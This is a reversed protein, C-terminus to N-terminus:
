MRRAGINRAPRARANKVPCTDIPRGLNGDVYVIKRGMPGVEQNGETILETWHMPRSRGYKDLGDEDYVM